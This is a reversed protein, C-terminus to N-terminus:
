RVPTHRGCICQDRGVFEYLVICDYTSHNKEDKEKKERRKDTTKIVLHEKVPSKQKVEKSHIFM